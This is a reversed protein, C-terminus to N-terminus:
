LNGSIEIEKLALLINERREKRGRRHFGFRRVASCAAHASAKIEKLVLLIKERHERRRQTLYM